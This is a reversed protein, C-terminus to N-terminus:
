IACGIGSGTSRGVLGLLRDRGADSLGLSDVTGLLDKADGVGGLWGNVRAAATSERFDADSPYMARFDRTLVNDQRLYYKQHYDEAVFFRELRRIQTAVKGGLSEAIRRASTEAVERQADDAWFLIHAYQSSWPASTPSHERWFIDM